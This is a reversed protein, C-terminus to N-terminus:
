LVVLYSIFLDHAFSIERSKLKVHTESPYGIHCWMGTELGYLDEDIDECGSAIINIYTYLM